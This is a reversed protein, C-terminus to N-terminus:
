LGTETTEKPHLTTLLGKTVACGFERRARPGRPERCRHMGARDPSTMGLCPRGEGSWFERGLSATGRLTEPLLCESQVGNM